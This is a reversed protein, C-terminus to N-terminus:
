EMRVKVSDFPEIMRLSRAVRFPDGRRKRDANDQVRFTVGLVLDSLTDALAVVEQKPLRRVLADQVKQALAELDSVDRQTIQM